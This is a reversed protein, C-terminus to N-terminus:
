AAKAPVIQRIRQLIWRDDERTVGAINELPTTSGSSLDHLVPSGKTDTRVTVPGKVASKFECRYPGVLIVAGRHIIRHVTIAPEIFREMTDATEGLGQVLRAIAQECTQVAFQLETLEEALSGSPKAGGAKKLTEFRTKAADRRETLAQYRDLGAGALRELDELVGLRVTTVIESEAGIQACEGSGGLGVEGGIIVAGPATLKGCVRVTSDNIEREATFNRGVFVLCADIYKAHLDRGSRIVGKERGAMGRGLTIDFRADLTAAEVLEGITISGKCRVTFRDKVGKSVTVDGPFDINGTSFDVAGSINLEREVRMETPSAVLHGSHAAAITGNEDVTVSRDLKIRAKKGEKAPIVRGTVDVGDTGDSKPVLRGIRQAALVVVFASRNYHDANADDAGTPPEPPTERKRKAEELKERLEPDIVVRADEGHEAQRGKAVVGEADKDPANRAELLLADIAANDIVAPSVGAEVLAAHVVARDLTGHDAGAAIRLTAGLRDGAMVVRIKNSADQEPM